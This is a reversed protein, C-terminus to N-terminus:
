AREMQKFHGVKKVYKVYRHCQDNGIMLCYDFLGSVRLGWNIPMMTIEVMKIGVAILCCDFLVIRM